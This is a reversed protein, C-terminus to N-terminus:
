RLMSGEPTTRWGSNRSQTHEPRGLGPRAQGPQDPAGRRRGRRRHPSPLAALVDRDGAPRPLARRSSRGPARACGGQRRLPVVAVWARGGHLAGGADSRPGPGQRHGHGRVTTGGLGDADRRPRDYGLRQPDVAAGTTVPVGHRRASRHRVRVPAPGGRGVMRDGGGGSRPRGRQHRGRARGGPGAPRERGGRCVLARHGATPAVSRRGVSPMSLDGQGCDAEGRCGFGCRSVPGARHPYDGTVTRANGFRSLPDGSREIPGRAPSAETVTLRPVPPRTSPGVISGRSDVKSGVTM